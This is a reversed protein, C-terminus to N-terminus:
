DDSNEIEERIQYGWKKVLIISYVLNLAQCAFALLLFYRLAVPHADIVMYRWAGLVCIADTACERYFYWQRRAMLQTVAAPELKYFYGPLPDGFMRNLKERDMVNTIQRLSLIHPNGGKIDAWCYLYSVLSLGAFVFIILLLIGIM